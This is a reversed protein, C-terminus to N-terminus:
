HLKDNVTTNNSKLEPASRAPAEEEQRLVDDMRQLDALIRLAALAEEPMVLDEYTAAAEKIMDLAQQRDTHARVAESFLIQGLMVQTAAIYPRDNIEQKLKLSEEFGKRAAQMNNSQYEMMALGHLVAAEVQKDGIERALRISRDYYTRATETNGQQSEFNAREHLLAAEGQKDGAGELLRAAEDYRRRALSMDGALVDLYALNALTQGEGIPDKSARWM